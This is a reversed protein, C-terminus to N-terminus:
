RQKSKKVGGKKSAHTLDRLHAVAAANPSDAVGPLADSIIYDESVAGNAKIIQLIYDHERSQTGTIMSGKATQYIVAAVIRKDSRRWTQLQKNCKKVHAARIQEATPEPLFDSVMYFATGAEQIRRKIDDDTRVAYVTGPGDKTKRILIAARITPDRRNWKQAQRSLEEKAATDPDAIMEPPLPDSVMYYLAGEERAVDLAMDLRPLNRIIDKNFISGYPNVPDDDGVTFPEALLLIAGENGKRAFKKAADNLQKLGRVFAFIREIADYKQGTVERAWAELEEGLQRDYFRFDTGGGDGSDTVDAVAKGDLTLKATFMEEDRGMGASRFNKIGVNRDLRPILQPEPNTHTTAKKM